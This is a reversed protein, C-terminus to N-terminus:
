DQFLRQLNGFNLDVVPLQRHRHEIHGLLTLVLVEQTHARQTDAVVVQLQLDVRQELQEDRQPVGQLLRLGLHLLELCDGFLGFTGLDLGDACQRQGVGRHPFVLRHIDGRSAEQHLFDDFEAHM